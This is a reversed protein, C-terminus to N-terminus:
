DPSHGKNQMWERIVSPSVYDRCWRLAERDIIKAGRRVAQRIKWAVYKKAAVTSKKPVPIGHRRMAHHAYREAEYEERHRSKTNIHRLVVHACEHAIIYLRRRTTPEPVRITRSNIHARGKLGNQHYFCKTVGAEDMMAKAAQQCRRAMKKRGEKMAAMREEVNKYQVSAAADTTHQKMM